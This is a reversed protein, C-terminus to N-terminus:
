SRHLLHNTIHAADEGIGLFLSSKTTHLWQLGIFYLGSQTTVGRQQMPYGVNDFIPFKIWSFDFSYGAAWIISRIGAADLDLETVPEVDYGARLEPEYEAPVQAGTAAIYGDIGKKFEATAGDAMALNDQLDTTISLRSGDANELRGLLQVGNLMFQHLNLSKGGDKGTIQPNAAFRRDPSDLTDATKEFMGLENGWQFIDKGRYRRPIRIAHGTCLYVKRGHQCLEDTIQCGSQGSGVVLVAGDPLTQPNRYQSSHLQQIHPTINSSFTPIKPKQFAGTAIVVNDATFIGQNTHITYTNVTGEICTVEIGMRVPPNFLKVYNELYEIIEDRTFFGDPDTGQYEFGPLRLTWNPSVMTFSDWKGSHWVEGIRPHKELVIHDHKAQTLYYSIALGAQGAGIVVTKYHETMM